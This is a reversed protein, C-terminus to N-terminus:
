NNKIEFVIPNPLDRYGGSNYLVFDPLSIKCGNETMESIVGKQPTDWMKTTQAVSATQNSIENHITWGPTEFKGEKTTAVFTGDKLVSEASLDFELFHDYSYYMASSTIGMVSQAPWEERYIVKIKWKGLYPYKANEPVSDKILEGEAQYKVTGKYNPSTAFIPKSSMTQGQDIEFCSEKTKVKIVGPEIKNKLDGNSFILIIRDFNENQKDFCFSRKELETWDEIYPQGNNKPYIIAKISASQNKGTFNKLDVFTAKKVGQSESFFTEIVQASLSKLEKTSIDSQGPILFAMDSNGGSQSSKAPFFKSQDVEKYKETPVKNYNWLTFERWTKKFGNDINQDASTLVLGNNQTCGEFIKPIIGRDKTSTLFFPFLYAGYEFDDGYSNLSLQPKIIFNDVYGQESNDKPYIFDESWTATGEIWWLNAKIFSCGFARQFAHFIEHVTTTKLNKENLNERIIIFSSKGNGNDPANVGYSSSGNTNLLLSYNAPGVYIDLKDDGGLTNDSPPVKGLLGVYQPYAQDTNLNSVIKQATSYYLKTIKEQNNIIEKKEPYWVKIKGDATILSEDSKYQIPRDFASAVEILGFGVTPKQIENNLIKSIYSEPNEPRLFYPKLIAKTEESLKDWNEQIETLAGQDEFAANQTFYEAPLTPDNFLFKIKYVLSKELDIKGEDFDKQILDLGTQNQSYRDDIIENQSTENKPWFKLAIFISIIALILVLGLVYKKNIKLM